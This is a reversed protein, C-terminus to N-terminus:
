RDPETALRSIEPHNEGLIPMLGTLLKGVDGSVSDAAFGFDAGSGSRAAGAIALRYRWYATGRLRAYTEAATEFLASAHTLRGNDMLMTAYVYTADARRLEDFPTRTVVDAIAAEALEFAREPQGDAALIRACIMQRESDPEDGTCSGPPSDGGTALLEYAARARGTRLLADALTTRNAERSAPVPIGPDDLVAQAAQLLAEAEAYRGLVVLLSGLFRKSEALDFALIDEDGVSIAHLERRLVLAAQLEGSTELARAQWHLALQTWLHDTGYVSRSIRSNTEAAALADDLENLMLYTRVLNHLSSAVLGHSEGFLEIRMALAREGFAASRAFDGERGALWALNHLSNAIDAHPPSFTAERLQLAEDFYARAAQPDELSAHVLGINSANEAREAPFASGLKAYLQRAAELSERASATRDLQRYTDGLANLLRAETAPDPDPMTRHVALADELQQAAYVFKGRVKYIGGLAELLRSKVAPSAGLAGDIRLRGAHLVDNVTPEAGSTEHPDAQRFVDVLFASVADSAAVESLAVHEAHRARMLGAIAAASGAVIAVIAFGAATAVARHRRWFSSVTYGLTLPRASVPEHAMWRGLDDALARPSSYRAAPEKRLAKMTITDLDRDIHEVARASPPPPLRDVIAAEVESPRTDTVIDYPFQRSLLQYLLLGLSYIDSATTIAAGLVQEPSAHRPTMIRSGVQTLDAAPRRAGVLKAIGFDLLMPVGDPTVLVNAPKIDRHVVLNRHAHDVADCVKQFLRIRAEIALDHLQCYEDIPNGDIYEMVLYPMGGATEGGDLLRAINPHVLDALIQREMAFRAQMESTSFDSALLKIAVRHEFARDSREALFVVGMGGAAIRECLTYNGARLGILREDHAMGIATAAKRIANDIPPDRRDGALMSDVLERLGSDELCATDLLRQQAAPPLDACELFLQEARQWTAADM